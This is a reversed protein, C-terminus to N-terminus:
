QDLGLDFDFETAEVGIKQAMTNVKEKVVKAVFSIAAISLLAAFTSVIVYEMTASGGEGKAILCDKLGNKKSNPRLKKM